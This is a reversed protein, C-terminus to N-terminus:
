DHNSPTHCILTLQSVLRYQTLEDREYKAGEPVNAVNDAEKRLLKILMPVVRPSKRFFGYKFMKQLLLIVQFILAQKPLRVSLLLLNIERDTVDITKISELFEFIFKELPEHNKFLWTEEKTIDLEKSTSLNTKIRYDEDLENWSQETYAPLNPSHKGM